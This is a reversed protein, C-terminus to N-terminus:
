IKQLDKPLDKLRFIRNAGIHRGSNLLEKARKISEELPANKPKTVFGGTVTVNVVIKDPTSLKIESISQRIIDVDKFLQDTTSRSLILTFQNYDSRAIIDTTQEYLSITYAVKKLITQTFEQSFARKSKSIIYSLKKM